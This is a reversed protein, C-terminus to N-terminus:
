VQIGWLLIDDLQPAYGRWNNFTTEAIQLNESPLNSKFNLILENFNKIGFKEDNRNLQDFIGDTSLILMSGKKINLTEKKFKREPEIEGLLSLGGISKPTSKLVKIEGEEILFGNNRAGSFHLLNKKHDIVAVSIDMGDQSYEDGKHQQLNKFILNHLNSLIEDPETIKQEVVIEMLNSYAIMTMFAGPVGHGTCDAVVFFSLNDHHHFWYFDGSVIDKPKFLIFNNSFYPSIEEPSPLISRQIKKAYNISDITKKQNLDVVKKQMEIIRKQKMSIKFRYFTFGSFVLMIILGIVLSFRQTREQQLKAHSEALKSNIIKKQDSLKISDALIKKDYEYKIKLKYSANRNEVNNLSDRMKINIDYMELAKEYNGNKQYIKKLLESAEMIGEPNGIEKSINLSTISNELAANFKNEQYNLKSLALHANAITTKNKSENAIQLSRSLYDAAKKYNGLNLYIEGINVLTISIRFKESFKEKIKLSREFYILAKNYEKQEEFVYGINNLCVSIMVLDKLDENIKLSGHYYELAEKFHKQMDYIIGINILMIGIGKKDNIEEYIKLSREDNEIAEKINGIMVLERGLIDYISALHKKDQTGKAFQLSKKAWSIAEQPRDIDLFTSSIFYCTKSIGERDKAEWFTKLAKRFYEIGKEFEEKKVYANGILNLSEGYKILYIKHLFNKSNNTKYNNLEINRESIIKGQNLYNLASDTSNKNIYIEGLYNLAEILATDQKTTKIVNELSDIITKQSFSTQSLFSIFLLIILKLHIFLYHLNEKIKRMNIIESFCKILFMGKFKM